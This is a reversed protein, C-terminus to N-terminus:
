YLRLATINEQNFDNLIGTAWIGPTSFYGKKMFSHISPALVSASTCAPHPYQQSERPFICDAVTSYSEIKM